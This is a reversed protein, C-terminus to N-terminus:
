STSKSLMGFKVDSPAIAIAHVDPMMMLMARSVHEILRQRVQELDRNELADLIPGHPDKQLTKWEVRGRLRALSHRHLLLLTRSLVPELGPMKNLSFLAMHLARDIESCAYVDERARAEIYANALKRLRDMHQPTCNAIGEATVSEFELSLRLRALLVAEQPSTLTVYTGQYGRRDVLGDEQLTLLAERITGQSCSFSQALAQETIASEETLDGLLIRRKLIQYVVRSKKPTRRYHAPTEDFLLESFLFEDIPTDLGTSGTTM